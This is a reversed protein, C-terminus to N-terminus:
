LIGGMNLFTEDNHVYERACVRGMLKEENEKPMASTNITVIIQNVKGM